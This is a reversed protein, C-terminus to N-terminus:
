ATLQIPLRISGLTGVDGRTSGYSAFEAVHLPTAGPSVSRASSKYDNPGDYGALGGRGSTMVRAPTVINHYDRVRFTPLVSGRRAQKHQAAEVQAHDLDRALKARSNLSSMFSVIYLRSIVLGPIVHWVGSAAIFLISSATAALATLANNAIVHRVLRDIISNTREFTTRARHLYIVLALTIVIDGAAMGFLWCAVSSELDTSITAWLPNMFASTTCWAGVGLQLFTLIVVLSPIFWARKSVIWIRYAYFLQVIFAVVASHPSIM